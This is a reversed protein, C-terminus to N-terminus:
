AEEVVGVREHRLGVIPDDDERDDESNQGILAVFPRMHLLDLGVDDDPEELLGSEDDAVLFMVLMMLAIEVSIVADDVAPHVGNELLYVEPPSKLCEDGFVGTIDGSFVIDIPSM